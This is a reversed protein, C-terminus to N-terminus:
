SDVLFGSSCKTTLVVLDIEQGQEGGTPALRASGATKRKGKNAAHNKSQIQPHRPGTTSM